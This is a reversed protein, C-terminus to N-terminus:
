PPMVGNRHGRVSLLEGQAEDAPAKPKPGHKGPRLHRRATLREIRALFRDDGLPRGISEAVRLRDFLDPPQHSL